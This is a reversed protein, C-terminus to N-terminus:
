GAAAFSMGAFTRCDFNTPVVDVTGARSRLLSQLLSQPMFEQPPLTTAAQVDTFGTRPM